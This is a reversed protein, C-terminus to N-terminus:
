ISWNIPSGSVYAKAWYCAIYDTSLIAFCFNANRLDFGYLSRSGFTDCFKIQGALGENSLGITAIVPPLYSQVSRPGIVGM